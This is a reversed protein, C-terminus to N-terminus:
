IYIVKCEILVQLLIEASKKSINEYQCDNHRLSIHKHCESCYEISILFDYHQLEDYYKYYVPDYNIDINTNNNKKMKQRAEYRRRSDEATSPRKKSSIPLSSSMRM